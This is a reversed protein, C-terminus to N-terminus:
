ICASCGFDKTLEYQCKINIGDLNYKKIFSKLSCYLGAAKQLIEDNIKHDTFENIKKVTKSIDESKINNIEKIISYIDFHVIEPGIIASMLLHDFSAPYMSMSMYGVLGLRTRRLAKKASSAFIYDNIEKLIDKNDPFGVVRKFNIDIRKLSGQLALMGVLSGSQEKSGKWDFMPFGWIIVPLHKLEKIIVLPVSCEVWTSIFIICCDIDKGLIKLAQDLAEKEDLIPKESGIVTNNSKQLSDIAEKALRVSVNDMYEYYDHHAINFFGVRKEKM